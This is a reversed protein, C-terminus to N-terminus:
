SNAPLHLRANLQELVWRHRLPDYELVAYSTNLFRFAAGQWNAQVTIGLIARMAMNLTGGHSVVLYRGPPRDLLSQVAKGARLFLEWASEGTRGMPTYPNHFDPPPYKEAAVEHKLGALVGNNLEMWVPDFELPVSLCQSLIEATQRARKLPSSIILDFSVQKTLWYESLLRAQLRGTDTLDFDFQGQHYGDANGVSEGHRLLTIHYLPPASTDL